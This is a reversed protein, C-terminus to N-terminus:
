VSVDRLEIVFREGWFNDSSVSAESDNKRFSSRCGSFDM